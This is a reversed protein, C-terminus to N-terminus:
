SVLASGIPSPLHDPYCYDFSRNGSGLDPAKAALSYGTLQRGLRTVIGGVDAQCASVGVLSFRPSLLREIKREGRRSEHLCPPSATDTGTSVCGVVAGSVIGVIAEMYPATPRGIARVVFYSVSQSKRLCSWIM